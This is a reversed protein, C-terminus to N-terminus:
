TGSVFDPGLYSTVFSGTRVLIRCSTEAPFHTASIFEGGRSCVEHEEQSIEALAEMALKTSRARMGHRQFVRTTRPQPVHRFDFNKQRSRARGPPNKYIHIGMCFVSTIEPQFRPCCLKADYQECIHQSLHVTCHKLAFVHEDLPKRRDSLTHIQVHGCGGEGNIKRARRSERWSCM